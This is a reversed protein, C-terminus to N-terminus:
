QLYLVLLLYIKVYVLSFVFHLSLLILYVFHSLLFDIPRLLDLAYDLQIAALMYNGFSKILSPLLHFQYIFFIPTFKSIFNYYKLFIQYSRVATQHQALLNGDAKYM